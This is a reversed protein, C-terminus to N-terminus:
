GSLKEPHRPKPCYLRLIIKPRQKVRVIKTKTRTKIIVTACVIQTATHRVETMGADCKLAPPPPVVVPTPPPTTTIVLPTPLEACDDNGPQGDKGSGTPECTPPAPPPPSPPLVPPPPPPPVQCGPKNPNRKCNAEADHAAVALAGLLAFALVAIIYLKKVPKGKPPHNM